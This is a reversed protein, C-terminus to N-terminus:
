EACKEYSACSLPDKEGDGDDGDPGCDSGPPGPPPPAPGGLFLFYLIHIGDAIDLAEDDNSDAADLCPPAPGGLFLYGLVFIGDTINLDGDADADGRHFVEPPRPSARFAVIYMSRDGGGNQAGFTYAGPAADVLEYVRLLSDPTGDNLEDIEATTGTDAFGGTWSPKGVHWDLLLYLTGHQEIEVELSCDAVDRDASATQLYEAGELTEDIGAFVHDADVYAVAGDALAARSVLPEENPSSGGRSVSVIGEPAIVEIERELPECSESTPVIAYVHKGEPVPAPDFYAMDFGGLQALQEGDRLVRIGQVNGVNSWRLEVGDERADALLRRPCPDVASGDLCVWQFCAESGDGGAVEFGVSGWRHPDPDRYVVQPASPPTQGAAWARLEVDAEQGGEDVRLELIV